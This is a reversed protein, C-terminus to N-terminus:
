TEVVKSRLGAWGGGAKVRGLILIDKEVEGVRFVRIADLSSALLGALDRFRASENGAYGDRFVDDLDTREVRTGPKCGAIRLADGDGPEAGVSGGGAEWRVVNIPEDSESPLLLGAVARELRGLDPKSM